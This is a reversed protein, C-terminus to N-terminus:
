ASLACPAATMGHIRARLFRDVALAATEAGMTFRDGIPVMAIEPRYLEAGPAM